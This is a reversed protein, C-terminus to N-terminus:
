AETGKTIQRFVEDLRGAELQVSAVDWRNDAVLVSIERWPGVGNDGHRAVATIALRARDSETQAVSPLRELAARV